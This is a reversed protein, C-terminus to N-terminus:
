EYDLTKKTRDLTAKFFKVNKLVVLFGFLHELRGSFNWRIEQNKVPEHFKLIELIELIKSVFIAGDFFNM